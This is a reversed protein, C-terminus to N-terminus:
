IHRFSGYVQGISAGPLVRLLQATLEASLPAASSMVMRISTLDFTKVAPHQLLGHCDAYYYFQLGRGQVDACSTPSGCQTIMVM